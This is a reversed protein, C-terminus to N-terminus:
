AGVLTVDVGGWTVRRAHLRTADPVVVSEGDRADRAARQFSAPSDFVQEPATGRLVASLSSEGSVPTVPGFAFTAHACADDRCRDLGHPGLELRSRTEFTATATADFSSAAVRDVTAAPRDADPAGTPLGLAVGLLAVSALALGVWVPVADAPLHRDM